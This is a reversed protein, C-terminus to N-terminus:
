KSDEQSELYRAFDAHKELLVELDYLVIYNLARLFLPRQPDGRLDVAIEHLRGKM